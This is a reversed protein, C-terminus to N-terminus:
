EERDYSPVMGNKPKRRGIFWGIEGGGIIHETDGVRKHSGHNGGGKSDAVSESDLLGSGESNAVM